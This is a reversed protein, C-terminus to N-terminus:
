SLIKFDNFLMNKDIIESRTLKLRIAKNISTLEEGDVVTPTNSGGIIFPFYAICLSDVFKNKLLISNLNGGGEVLIKHIGLLILEKRLHIFFNRSPITLCVVGKKKFKNIRAINKSNTIIYTPVSGDFINRDIPLRLNRDIVIRKLQPNNKVKLVPDDSLVTGSSVLVAEAWTRMKVVPSSMRTTLLSSFVKSSTKKRITIKGDVSCGVLIKVELSENKM